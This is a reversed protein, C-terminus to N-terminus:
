AQSSHGAVHRNNVDWTIYSCPYGPHIIYVPFFEGIRGVSRDRAIRSASGDLLLYSRPSPFLLSERRLIQKCKYRKTHWLIKRCPAEPKIEAGYSSTSLINDGRGPKFGSVKPGIVPM